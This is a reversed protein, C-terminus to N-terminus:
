RRRMVQTCEFLFEFTEIHRKASAVDRGWTYLGHGAILFGHIQLPLRLYSEMAAIIDPMSQSNAVIPLREEMDHTANGELGKLIEYGAFRLQGEAAHELSLTTGLVSHTHLVCGIQPFLRYLHTHIETEASPKIGPGQFPPLVEGELNTMILDSLQFRAKDVGSRSIIIHGPTASRASYNTSTAPSWGQQSFYQIAELLENASPLDRPDFM